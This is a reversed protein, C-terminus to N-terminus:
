FDHCGGDVSSKASFRLVPDFENQTPITDFSMISICFSHLFMIDLIDICLVTGMSKNIAACGRM